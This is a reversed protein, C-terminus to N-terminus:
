DPPPVYQLRDSWVALTRYPLNKAAALLASPKAHFHLSALEDHQEAAPRCTPRETRARLRQALHRGDAEQARGCRPSPAAPDRSKHQSQAFEAPDFSAGDRDFIAPGLCAALAVGLDRGLEDPQLDIDNDGRS